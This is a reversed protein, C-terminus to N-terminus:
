AGIRIQRARNRDVLFGDFKNIREFLAKITQTLNARRFFGNDEGVGGDSLVVEGAAKRLSAPTFADDQKVARVVARIRVLDILGPEFLVFATVQDGTDRGSVPAFGQDILEALTAPEHNRGFGGCFTDVQLEAGHQDVVVQWPVRLAHFLADAADVTEPLFM